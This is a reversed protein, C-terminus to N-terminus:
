ASHGDAVWLFSPTKDATLIFWPDIGHAKTYDNVAAVVQIFPKKDSVRYDHGAVIGGARVKPAWRLLDEIVADYVHNGDIYVFDLSGDPVGQAADASFKRVITCRLPDLRRRADRYSEEMFAKAKEPPLANKTDIWAQHPEWPDVCLMRLDPNAECFKASFAGRWVGVEAGRTFGFDRCLTPLHDRGIKPLAIPSTDGARAGGRQQLFAHRAACIFTSTV